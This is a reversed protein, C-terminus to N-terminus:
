QRIAYLRYYQLKGFQETFEQIGHWTNIWTEPTMQSKTPVCGVRIGSPTFVTKYILESRRSRFGPAVVIISGIKEQVLFDRIQKAANLSIPEDHNPVAVPEINPLHAVRAMARATDLQYSNPLDEKRVGIMPVLFRSAVGARRLTEAQEFVLYDPDFNELLLADSPNSTQDCILSQALPADWIEATTTLTIFILALVALKFKWTTKWVEKRYFFHNRWDKRHKTIAIM